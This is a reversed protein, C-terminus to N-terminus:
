RTFQTTLSIDLSSNGVYLAYDGTAINWTKAAENWFSLPHGSSDPDIEISIRRSENPGLFCKSWGVLRKPPEVTSTPLGLYVQVVEAGSVSGTNTVTLSVSIVGTDVVALDSLSFTTYSLGYGFPFLPQMNNVDFWKYGVNFGEVYNVDFISLSGSPGPIAPRPLDAVSAPFTIPLKGSPNVRGFLINAIAPGGNQGPYWAELVASVSDLWPMIQAGGTELVVITHPNASAVAAVLQDQNDRLNLNPLDCNEAEWQNVFVIVVDSAGALKAASATNTGSNYQVRAAPASAQIANLPSSRDWIEAGLCEPPVPDTIVPVPGGIPIVQSSGGGSLVGVDAHSGIVAISSIQSGDLPLQHGVNKLLVAGNEEIEQAITGDGTADLPQIITPYDFIGVAFMARLIRHVMDDLRSEQFDGNLVAQKLQDGFLIAVPIEMDLGTVAPSESIGHFDDARFDTLVFGPFGWDQKLVRNLLFDNECSHVGNYLNFACMVSQVGSEKIGIEFALLDSERAGREDIVANALYRFGEQDNFAFTHINAIVHQDQIARLQAADIAGARIPDEGKSEFVRGDRPERGILYISGAFSVNIGYDFLETGIVRGYNYAEKTDWTAANAISSPLATAEGVSNGVGVSGDGFYLDPIGLRPIGPVHSGAGRPVGTQVDGHVLQIKEDLTMQSLLQDARQDASLRAGSPQPPNSSCSCLLAVVVVAGSANAFTM